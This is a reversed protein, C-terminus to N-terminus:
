KTECTAIERSIIPAESCLSWLCNSNKDYVYSRILQQFSLNDKIQLDELGGICQVERLRPTRKLVGYYVFSEHSKFFIFYM